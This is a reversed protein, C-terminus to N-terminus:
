VNGFDHGSDLSIKHGEMNQIFNLALSDIGFDDNYHLLARALIMFMGQSFSSFLDDSYQEVLLSIYSAVSWDDYYDKNSEHRM